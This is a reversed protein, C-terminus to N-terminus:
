EAPEPPVIAVLTDGESPAFTENAVVVHVRGKPSVVFLPLADEGHRERWHAHDFKETLHTARLAGSRGLRRSLGYYDASESFLTRGRLRRTAAKPSTGTTREPLADGRIQYLAGREFDDLLSVCALTNVEDNPTLALVRGIGHLDLGDLFEDDLVNGRAAQLGELRAARVNDRNADVLLVRVHLAQLARAIERAWAHAGVFLLGQPDPVSLGLRRALIPGTLGYVVVTGVIVLFTLPVLREAGPVGRGILELGFVSAVSAAVIGRPCLWALFIREARALGSGATSLWVALPRAVLLLVGLFAFAGADLSAIEEVRLRAALLVFLSSILLVRLNEKFELVHRVAEGALNAAVIGMVTVAFLGSEEQLANAGAFTGVVIALSAPGDLHSAFWHRELARTLLLGAVGGGVIGVAVTALLEGPGHSAMAAVDGQRLAQHVLLAILAGIPDILIGEWTLISSTAGSPRIHRLLPLVVTPGSVILIAGLLLALGWDLGALAHAALTGLGWTVLAGLTVLRLVVRGHGRLDRLHLGLGGEFLIVGVSVSVVPFLLDGLLSDPDVLGLWEPGAFFGVGLLLLISPMRVRLALWQAGMGLLLVAAIASVGQM